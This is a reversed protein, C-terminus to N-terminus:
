LDLIRPEVTDNQPLSRWHLHAGVGIAESAPSFSHILPERKYDSKDTSPESNPNHLIKTNQKQQNKKRVIRIKRGEIRQAKRMNEM